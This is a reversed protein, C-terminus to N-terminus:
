CVWSIEKAVFVFSVDTVFLAVLVWDDMNKKFNGWAFSTKRSDSM